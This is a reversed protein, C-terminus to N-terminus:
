IIKTIKRLDTIKQSDVFFPEHNSLARKSSVVNFVNVMKRWYEGMDNLWVAIKAYIEDLAPIIAALLIKPLVTLFAPYGRSEVVPDWWQQLILPM